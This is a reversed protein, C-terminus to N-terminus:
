SLQLFEARWAIFAHPDPEGGLGLYYHIRLGMGGIGEHFFFDDDQAPVGIGRCYADDRFLMYYRYALAEADAACYGLRGAMWGVIDDFLANTDEDTPLPPNM